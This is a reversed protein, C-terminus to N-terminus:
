GQRELRFDMGSSIRRALLHILASESVLHCLLDSILFYIVEDNLINEQIRNRESELTETLEKLRRREEREDQLRARLALLELQTNNSHFILIPLPPLNSSAFTRSGTKVYTSEPLPADDNDNEYDNLTDVNKVHEAMSPDFMEIVEVKLTKIYAELAARQTAEANIMARMEEIEVNAAATEEMFDINEDELKENAQRLENLRNKYELIEIEIEHGTEAVMELNIQEQDIEQQLDFLEERLRDEEEELVANAGDDDQKHHLKLLDRELRLRANELQELKEAEQNIEAMLREDLNLQEEIAKTALM